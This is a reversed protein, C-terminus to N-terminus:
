GFFHSSRGAFEDILGTIVLCISDVMLRDADSLRADRLWTRRSDPHWKLCERRMLKPVDEDRPVAKQFFEKVNSNKVDRYSSSEVPWPIADRFEGEKIVSASAKFQAWREQYKAWRRDWEQREKQENERKEREREERKKQARQRTRENAAAADERERRQKEKKERMEKALREKELREKELREKELHEKKLREEELREEELREEELREEELREEKLREKEKRRAERMREARRRRQLEEQRNKVVQEEPGEGEQDQHRQNAIEERLKATAEEMEKLQNRLDEVKQNQVREQLRSSHVSKAPKREEIPHQSLQIKMQWQVVLTEAQVQHNGQCLALGAIARLRSMVAPNDPHLNAIEDLTRKILERKSAKIPNQCRRRQTPAYGNCTPAGTDPNKIELTKYPEWLVERETPITRPSSRSYYVM